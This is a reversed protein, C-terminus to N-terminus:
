PLKEKELLLRLKETEYVDLSISISSSDFIILLRGAVISLIPTEDYEEGDHFPFVRVYHESSITAM